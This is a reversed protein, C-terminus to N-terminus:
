RGDFEKGILSALDCEYKYLLSNLDVTALNACCGEFRYTTDHGSERVARDHIFYEDLEPEKIEGSWYKRKFDSLQPDEDEEEDNHPHHPPSSPPCPPSPSNSSQAPYFGHKEAFPRLIHNFHCSETEPPMGIGQTRYKSLGVVPDLRPASKWVAFYEKIAARTGHALWKKLDTTTRLPQSSTYKRTTSSSSSSPTKSLPPPTSAKITLAKYVRILMDTLFPPQSRSLYYSRNANLIKGYYQIEYVSLLPFLNTLEFITAREGRVEVM